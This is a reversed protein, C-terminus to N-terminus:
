VLLITLRVTFYVRKISHGYEVTAENPQHEGVIKRQKAEKLHNIQGTQSNDKQVECCRIGAEEVITAKEWKHDVAKVPQVPVQDDAALAPM